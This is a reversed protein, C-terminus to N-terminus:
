YLSKSFLAQVTIQIPFIHLIHSEPPSLSIGTTILPHLSSGLIWQETQWLFLLSEQPEKEEHRGLQAAAASRPISLPRVKNNVLSQYARRGGFCISKCFIFSASNPFFLKIKFSIFSHYVSMPSDPSDQIITLLSFHTSFNYPVMEENAPIGLLWLTGSFNVHVQQRRLAMECPCNPVFCIEYVGWWYIYM